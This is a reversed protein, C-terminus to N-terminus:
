ASNRMALEHTRESGALPAFASRIKVAETSISITRLM